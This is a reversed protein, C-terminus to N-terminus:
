LSVAPHQCVHSNMLPPHSLFLHAPSPPYGLSLGVCFFPPLLGCLLTAGQSSWRCSRAPTHASGYLLVPEPTLHSRAHGGQLSSARNEEATEKDATTTVVTSVVGACCLVFGPHSVPWWGPEQGLGLPLRPEQPTVPPLSWRDGECCLSFAQSDGRLSHSGPGM